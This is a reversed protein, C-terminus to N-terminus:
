NVTIEKKIVKTKKDDEISLFYIGKPLNLKFCNENLMQIKNLLPVSNTKFKRYEDLLYVSVFIEKGLYSKLSKDCIKIESLNFDYLEDLVPSINNMLYYDVQNLTDADKSNFLALKDNNCLKYKTQNITLPDINYKEYLLEAMRKKKSNRENVHDFGAYVFVKADADKEIIKYLNDAQNEERNDTFSDYAVLTFNNKLAERLFLGFFPEKSYYGSSTLLNKNANLSDIKENNLTEVAIYKFNNKILLPLIKYAFIRNEPLWHNENLIVIKENSIIGSLSDYVNSNTAIRNEYKSNDITKRKTNFYEILNIYDQSEPIRSYITSLYQFDLFSKKFDTQIKSEALKNKFFLVNRENQYFSFFDVFTIPNEDLKKISDIIKKIENNYIERHRLKVKSNMVISYTKNEFQTNFAVVHNQPNKETESKKVEIKSDILIYITFIPDVITVGSFLVKRVDFNLFEKKREKIEKRSPSYEVIDGPMKMSFNLSDNIISGNILATNKDNKFATACSNLFLILLIILFSFKKKRNQQRVIM